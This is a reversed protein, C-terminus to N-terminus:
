RGFLNEVDKLSLKIYTPRGHNCQGSFPTKEMERLLANMEPLSLSRGARISSHCAITASIHDLNDHLAFINRDEKLEAAIDEFLAKINVKGAIIAPIEKVIIANIGFKEVLFGHKMFYPANELLLEMMESDEFEIIEPILLKQMLINQQKLKEYLLREHAAHQDILIMGDETQSLIYTNFLQAKANGLPHHTPEIEPEMIPAFLTSSKQEQMQYSSPKPAFSIYQQEYNPRFKTVANEAIMSSTKHSNTSLATKIAMNIYRRLNQFDRFRVETKAPHVNVDVEYPDIELFLVILPYRDKALYDQYSYRITSAIQKDKIPRKNVFFLQETSTGLNYTPISAFGTIKIGEAELFIPSSNEIFGNRMIKAIREKIDSSQLDLLTKGDAKLYFGIAPNALAIKEMVDKIQQQEIKESKMFKLRAPTAFFLDRVEIKTGQSLAAPSPSHKQGGIVEIKWADEGKIRSTINMRSVSAIAPLAEGRFGFHRLDLLDEGPLKSTAHREVALMLEDCTMGKGDDSVMILNRGGLEIEVWINQAHADISNEVLEKVVAAPREVVEGAAIRNILYQPLIRITM